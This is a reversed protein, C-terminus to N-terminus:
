FRYIVGTFVGFAYPNSGIMNNTTYSQLYYKFSPEIDILLNEAIRFGLGLGLTSSYNVPRAMLVTGEKMIDSGTDVFVNNDILINTSMGGLFYFNLKGDIVKYRLIVPIELYDLREILRYKAPASVNVATVATNLGAQQPESSFYNAYNNNVASKMNSVVTVNGSSTRVLNKAFSNNSSVATYMNNVPVVNNVSQGMQSYFLGTQISLRSVFKYAVTVGGSYTLLASEAADFDSKSMGAPVTTITRYSYLPAFQGKVEWRRDKPKVPVTPDVFAIDDYVPKEVTTLTPKKDELNSTKETIKKSLFELRKVNLSKMQVPEEWLDTYTPTNPRSETIARKESSVNTSLNRDPTSIRVIQDSKERHIPMSVNTSASESRSPLNQNTEPLYESERVIAEDNAGTQERLHQDPENVTIISASEEFASIKNTQLYVVSATVSLVLALSAAALWYKRTNRGRRNLESEIRLWGDEPPSVELNGIKRAFLDDIYEDNIQM